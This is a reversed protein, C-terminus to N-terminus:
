RRRNRPRTPIKTPVFESAKAFMPLDTVPREGSGIGMGMQEPKIGQRETETAFLPKEVVEGQDTFMTQTVNEDDM